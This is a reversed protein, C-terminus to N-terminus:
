GAVYLLICISVSHYLSSGFLHVLFANTIHSSSVCWSMKFVESAVTIYNMTIKMINKHLPIYSMVFRIPIDTHRDKCILINGLFSSIILVHYMELDLTWWSSVKQFYIKQIYMNYTDWLTFNISLENRFLDICVELKLAQRTLIHFEFKAIKKYIHSTICKKLHM